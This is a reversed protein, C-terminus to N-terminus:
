MLQKNISTPLGHGFLIMYVLALAAFLISRNEAMKQNNGIYMMFMYMFIGILMSHLLMILGREM